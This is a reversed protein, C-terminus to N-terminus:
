KLNHKQEKSITQQWTMHDKVLALATPSFSRDARKIGNQQKKSM